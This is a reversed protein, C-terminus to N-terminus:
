RRPKTSAATTPAVESRIWKKGDFQDEEIYLEIDHNKWNQEDDGMADGFGELNPNGQRLTWLLFEGKFKLKVVVADQGPRFNDPQIRADVITAAQHTTSLMDASLYRLGTRKGKRQNGGQQPANGRPIMNNEEWQDYPIGANNIVNGDDHDNVGDPKIDTLQEHVESCYGHFKGCVICTVRGMCAAHDNVPEPPPVDYTPIDRPSAEPENWGFNFDYRGM